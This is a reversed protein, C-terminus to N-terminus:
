FVEPYHFTRLGERGGRGNGTVIIEKAKPNLALRSPAYGDTGLIWRPPVDGSDHISWVAVGSASEEGSRGIGTTFMLGKPPHLRIHQVARIGTKPGQITRLPAVNGHATRDFILIRGGSEDDSSVVLVDNIPDVAAARGGKDIRTDPGRIIRIPAVDGNAIRSFVLIRDAETVYLEDHVPDVAVGFDPSQLQTLPGQLIRIPPEEGDSGGQYTMIAQGFVNAIVIEDNVDDYQIDHMARGM